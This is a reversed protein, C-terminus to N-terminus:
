VHARGIELGINKFFNLSATHFKGTEVMFRMPSLNLYLHMPINVFFIFADIASKHNMTIIIPEKINKLNEKGYVTCNTFFLYFPKLIFFLIRQTFKIIM